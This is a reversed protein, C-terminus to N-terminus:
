VAIASLTESLKRKYDTLAISVEPGLYSEVHDFETINDILYRIRDIRATKRKYGDLVGDWYRVYGVPFDSRLGNLFILRKDESSLLGIVKNPPRVEFFDAFEKIADKCIDKYNSKLSLVTLQDSLSVLEKVKENM